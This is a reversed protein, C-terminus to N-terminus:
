EAAPRERRYGRMVSQAYGNEPDVGARLLEQVRSPGRNYAVLARELDDDYRTLLERLYRFGLRLNTERDYLQDVTLGPAFVRATSPLIQTLGIAGARSRARRDFRSEVSVLRFALGPEIGEALAVDYVAAALDAPIDYRESYGMVAEARDLQLRAVLLQGRLTELQQSLDQLESAMASTTPRAPASGAYQVWGISSAIVAGLVLLGGSLRWWRAADM